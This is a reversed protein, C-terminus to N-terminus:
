EGQPSVDYHHQSVDLTDRTPRMIWGLNFNDLEKIMSQNTKKLRDISGDIGASWTVLTRTFRGVVRVAGNFIATMCADEM